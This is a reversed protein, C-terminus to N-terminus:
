NKQNLRPMCGALIVKKGKKLLDFVRRRIKEQTPEKVICSNIIILDAFSENLTLNMGAQKILGKMIESSNKNATCGYTEFYLELM